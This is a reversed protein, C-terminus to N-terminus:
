AVGYRGNERKLRKRKFLEGLRRQVNDRKVTKDMKALAETVQVTAFMKGKNATLHNMIRTALSPGAPTGPRSAAQPKAPTKAPAATPSKMPAASGTLMNLAGRRKSLEQELKAIEQRLISVADAM